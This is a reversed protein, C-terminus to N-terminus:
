NIMESKRSYFAHCVYEVVPMQFTGVYMLGDPIGTPHGTTFLRITITEKREEETDVMAWICPTGTQMQLCLIEAGEPLELTQEDIVKIEYKWITRM